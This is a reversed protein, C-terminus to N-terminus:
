PRTTTTSVTQCTPECCGKRRRRLHDALVDATTRIGDRKMLDDDM